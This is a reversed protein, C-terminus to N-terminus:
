WSWALQLCAPSVSVQPSPKSERKKGVALLPVGVVTAALGIALFADAAIGLSKMKDFDGRYKKECEYTGAAMSCKDELDGNASLAAGGTGAMVFLSALGLGLLAGGAKVMPGPGKKAAKAPTEVPAVPTVPEVPKEVAKKVPPPPPVPPLAVIKELTVSLSQAGGEKLDVNLSYDKYGEKKVAVSHEGAEKRIASALPTKGILVGDVFVEAGEVEATVEISGLQAGLDGLLAEVEKKRDAPVDTGGEFLYAKLEKEAEVLDGLEKLSLAIYYRTKWRPFATYSAKFEVLAGAYDGSNHLAKGKEFHAKASAEDQQASAAPAFLLPIALVALVVLSGRMFGGGM